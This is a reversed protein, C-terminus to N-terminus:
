SLIAVVEPFGEVSVSQYTGRFGWIGGQRWTHVSLFHFFGASFSNAEQM